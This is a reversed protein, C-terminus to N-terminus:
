QVVFQTFYVNKVEEKKLVENVVDKISKKLDERGQDSTLSEQTQLALLKIMADRIPVARAYFKEPIDREVFELQIQSRLYGGGALNVVFSELPFIAGQAEENEGHEDEDLAGELTGHDETDSAADSAANEVETAPKKMSFFILPAGIALVLFIVAGVIIFLKKKGAPKPPAVAEQGKADKGEEAEKKEKKDKKEDAM